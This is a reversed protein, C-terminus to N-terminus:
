YGDNSWEIKYDSYCDQIIECSLSHDCRGFGQSYGYVLITKKEQSINIRGGGVCETEVSSNLKLDALEALIFFNITVILLLTFILMFLM